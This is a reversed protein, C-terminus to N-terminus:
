GAVGGIGEEIEIKRYRSDFCRSGRDIAAIGADEEDAAGFAEDGAAGIEGFRDAAEGCVRVGAGIAKVGGLSMLATTSATAGFGTLAPTPLPKAM